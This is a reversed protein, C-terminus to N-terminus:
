LTFKKTMDDIQSEEFEKDSNLRTRINLVARIDYIFNTM